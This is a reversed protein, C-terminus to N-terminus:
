IAGMLPLSPPPTDLMQCMYRRNKWWAIHPGYDLAIATFAVTPTDDVQSPQIGLLARGHGIPWHQWTRSLFIAGNLDVSLPPESLVQEVQSHVRVSHLHAESRAFLPSDPLLSQLAFVMCIIALLQPLSRKM